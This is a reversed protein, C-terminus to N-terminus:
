CSELRPEPTSAYHVRPVDTGAPCRTPASELDRRDVVDLPGRTMPTRLIERSAIDSPQAAEDSACSQEILSLLEARAALSPGGVLEVWGGVTSATAIGVSREIAVAMERATPWRDTPSRALGRLVIDDLAPPVANAFRSPPPFKASCVREM